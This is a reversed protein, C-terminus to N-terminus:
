SEKFLFDAFFSKLRTESYVHAGSAEPANKFPPIGHYEIGMCMVRAAPEVPVPVFHQVTQGCLAYAAHHFASYVKGGAAGSQRQSFRPGPDPGSGADMRLAEDLVVGGRYIFEMAVPAGLQRGNFRQVAIGPDHRNSFAPQIVMPGHRLVGLQRQKFCLEGCCLLVAQGNKHMVAFGM